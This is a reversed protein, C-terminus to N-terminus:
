SIKMENMKGRIYQLQAPNNLVKLIKRTRDSELNV